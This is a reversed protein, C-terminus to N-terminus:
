WPKIENLNREPGSPLHGTTGRKFMDHIYLSLWGKYLLPLGFM